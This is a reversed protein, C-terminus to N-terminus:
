FYIHLSFFDLGSVSNIDLISPTLSLRLHQLTLCASCKGSGGFVKVRISAPIRSGGQFSAPMRGKLCRLVQMM